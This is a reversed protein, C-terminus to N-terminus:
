IAKDPKKTQRKGSDPSKHYVDPCNAFVIQDSELNSACAELGPVRTLRSGELNVSSM